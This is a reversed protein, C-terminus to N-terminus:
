LYFFFKVRDFTAGALTEFSSQASPFGYKQFTM